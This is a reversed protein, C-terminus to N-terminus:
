GDLLVMSEAAAAAIALTVVLRVSQLAGVCLKDIVAFRFFLHVKEFLADEIAEDSLKENCGKKLINDCFTALL